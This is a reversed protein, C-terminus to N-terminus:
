MLEISEIKEIAFSRMDNRLYCYARLFLGSREITLEIPDIIRETPAPTSRSRYVIRLRRREHIAQRIIPPPEPETQGPIIGRQIRMLDRLTSIHREAMLGTLHRFLAITSIVDSMARHSPSPLQLNAALTSLSYSTSRLLRRALPLTDIVLPQSFPQPLLEYERRLFGLDFPANHAVVIAGELFHLVEDAIQAFLPAQALIDGRLGNVSFAQAEVMRQPNVLTEFSTEITTGCTRVLAIECIRHGHTVHLGTTELDLFVLPLTAIPQGENYHHYTM